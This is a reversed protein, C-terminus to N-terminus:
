KKRFNQLTVYLSLIGAGLCLMGVALLPGSGPDNYIFYAIILGVGIPPCLLAGILWRIDWDLTMADLFPPSETPSETGAKGTM